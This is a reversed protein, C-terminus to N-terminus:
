AKRRRRVVSEGKDLLVNTPEGVRENDAPRGVLNRDVSGKVRREEAKPRFTYSRISRSSEPLPTREVSRSVSTQSRQQRGAMRNIVSLTSPRLRTISRQSASVRVSVFFARTGRRPRGDTAIAAGAVPCSRRPRGDPELFLDVFFAALPRRRLAHRSSCRAARSM